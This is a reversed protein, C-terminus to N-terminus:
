GLADSISHDHLRRALTVKISSPFAKGHRCYEAYIRSDRTKAFGDPDNLDFGDFLETPTCLRPRHTEFAFGHLRPFLLGGTAVIHLAASAELGCGIFLCDPFRAGLIIETQSELDLGQVAAVPRAERDVWRRFEDVSEIELM